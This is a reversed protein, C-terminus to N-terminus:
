LLGRLLLMSWSFAARLMPRPPRVRDSHRGMLFGTASATTLLLLWHRRYEARLVWAATAAHRQHFQLRESYQRRERLAQRLKSM